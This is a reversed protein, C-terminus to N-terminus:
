VQPASTILLKPKNYDLVPQVVIAKSLVGRFPDKLCVETDIDGYGDHVGGQSIRIMLAAAYLTRKTNGVQPSYQLYGCAGPAIFLGDTFLNYKNKKCNSEEIGFGEIRAILGFKTANDIEITQMEISQHSSSEKSQSTESCITTFPILSFSSLGLLTIYKKTHALM